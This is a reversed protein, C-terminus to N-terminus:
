QLWGFAMASEGEEGDAVAGGQAVLGRDPAAEDAAVIVVRFWSAVGVDTSQAALWGRGRCGAAGDSNSGGEVAVVVVRFRPRRESTGARSLANQM